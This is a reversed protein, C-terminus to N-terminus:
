FRYQSCCTLSIHFNSLLTQPTDSLANNQNHMKMNRSNQTMRKRTINLIQTSLSLTLICIKCLTTNNVPALWQVPFSLGNYGTFWLSTIYLANNDHMPIGYLFSRRRVFLLSISMDPRWYNYSSDICSVCIDCSYSLQKFLVLFDGKQLHHMPNHLYCGPSGM